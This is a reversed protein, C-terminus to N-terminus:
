SKSSTVLSALVAFIEVPEVPKPLHNNFGACLARARDEVRAHATLAVAPVRGGREPPLARLREIFGFGDVGPM